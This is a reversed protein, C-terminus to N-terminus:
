AEHAAEGGHNIDGDEDKNQKINVGNDTDDEEAFIVWNM